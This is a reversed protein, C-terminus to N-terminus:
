DPEAPNGQPPGADCHDCRPSQHWRRRPHFEIGSERSILAIEPPSKTRGHTPHSSVMAVQRLISDPRSKRKSICLRRMVTGRVGAAWQTIDAPITEIRGLRVELLQCDFPYGASAIRSGRSQTKARSNSSIRACLRLTELDVHFTDVCRRPPKLRHMDASTTRPLLQNKNKTCIM